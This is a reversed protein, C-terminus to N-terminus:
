LAERIAEFTPQLPLGEDSLSEYSIEVVKGIYSSPKRGRENDTMGSGVSVGCDLVLAGIKGAYKGEGETTGICTAKMTPRIKMKVLTKLRSTSNAWIMDPQALMLGEYGLARIAAYYADLHARDGILHNEPVFNVCLLNSWENIRSLINRYGTSAKNKNYDEDNLYSFIVWRLEKNNNAIRKSTNTVFTTQIGSHVRDGLKGEVGHGMMEAFYHGDPLQDFPTNNLLTFEKGGSTVYTIAKGRKHVETNRGDYKISAIVPFKLTNYPM